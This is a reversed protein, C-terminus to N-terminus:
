SQFEILVRYVDRVVPLAAPAARLAAQDICHQASKSPALEYPKVHVEHTLARDAGHLDNPLDIM